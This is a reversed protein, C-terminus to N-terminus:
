ENGLNNNTGHSEKVRELFAAYKRACDENTNNYYADQLVTIYDYVKRDVGGHKKSPISSFVVLMIIVVFSAGIGGFLIGELIDGVEDSVSGAVLALIVVMAITCLVIIGIVAWVTPTRKVTDVAYRKCEEATLKTCVQRAEEKRRKVEVKEIPKKDWHKYAEFEKLAVTYDSWPAKCFTPMDRLLMKYAKPRSERRWKELSDSKDEHANYDFRRLDYDFGYKKTIEQSCKICISEIIQAPVSSFFGKAMGGLPVHNDYEYLRGNYKLPKSLLEDGFLLDLHDFDPTHVEDQWIMRVAGLSEWTDGGVLKKTKIITNIWEVYDEVQRKNTDIIKKEETTYPQEFDTKPILHKIFEKPTPHSERVYEELGDVINRLCQFFVVDQLAINRILKPGGTNRPQYSNGEAIIVGCMFAEFETM